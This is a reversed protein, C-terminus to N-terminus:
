AFDSVYDRDDLIVRQSTPRTVVHTGTKPRKCGARVDNEIADPIALRLDHAHEVTPLVNIFYESFMVFM